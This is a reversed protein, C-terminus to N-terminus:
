AVSLEICGFNNASPFVGDEGVLQWYFIFTGKTGASPLPLSAFLKQRSPYLKYPHDTSFHRFMDGDFEVLEPSAPVLSRAAEDLVNMTTSLATPVYLHWYFDNAGKTGINHAIFEFKSTTSNHEGLVTLKSKRSLLEDQKNMLSLQRNMIRVQYLVVVLTM